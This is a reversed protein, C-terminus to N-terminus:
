LFSYAYKPHVRLGKFSLSATRRFLYEKRRMDMISIGGGRSAVCSAVAVLLVVVISCDAVVGIVCVCPVSMRRASGASCRRTCHASSTTFLSPISLFDDFPVVNVEEKINYAKSVLPVYYAAYVM